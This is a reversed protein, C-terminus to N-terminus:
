EGIERARRELVDGDETRGLRCGAMGGHAGGKPYAGGHHLVAESVVGGGPVVDQRLIDLVQASATLRQQHRHVAWRAVPREGHEEARVASRPVGAVAGGGGKDVRPEGFAAHDDRGVVESERRVVRVRHLDRLGVERHSPQFGVCAVQVAVGRADAPRAIRAARM